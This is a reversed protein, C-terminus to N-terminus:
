RYACSGEEREARGAMYMERKDAKQIQFTSDKDNRRRNNRAFESYRLVMGESTNAIM